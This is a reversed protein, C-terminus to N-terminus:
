CDALNEVIISKETELKGVTKTRRHFHGASLILNVRDPLQTKVGSEPHQVFIAYRDALVELIISSKM